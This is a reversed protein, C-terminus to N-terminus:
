SENTADKDWRDACGVDLFSTFYHSIPRSATAVHIVNYEASVLSFRM